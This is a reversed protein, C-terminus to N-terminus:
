LLEMVEYDIVEGRNYLEAFSPRKHHIEKTIFPKLEDYDISNIIFDYLDFEDDSLWKLVSELSEDRGEQCKLASYKLVKQYDIWIEAEEFKLVFIEM